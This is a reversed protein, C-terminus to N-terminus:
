ARARLVAEIVIEAIRAPQENLTLHGADAVVVMTVTPCDDLIAREDDRLGVDGHDGFVVWAPVGSECLAPAL